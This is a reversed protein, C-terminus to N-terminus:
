NLKIVENYRSLREDSEFEEESEHRMEDLVEDRKKRQEIRETITARFQVIEGFMFPIFLSWYISSVGLAFALM